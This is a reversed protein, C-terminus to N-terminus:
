MNFELTNYIVRKNVQIAIFRYFKKIYKYHFPTCIRALTSTTSLAFIKTHMYAFIIAGETPVDTVFSRIVLASVVADRLLCTAIRSKKQSVRNCPSCMYAFVINQIYLEFPAYSIAYPCFTWPKAQWHRLFRNGYKANVCCGNVVVTKRWRIYRASRIYRQIYTVCFSLRQSRM